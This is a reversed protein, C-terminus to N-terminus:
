AFSESSKLSADLCVADETFSLGNVAVNEFVSKLEPVTELNLVVQKGDFREILGAPTKELLLRRAKDLIFGGLNGADVEATVRSGDISVIKVNASVSPSMMGLFNLVFSVTATDPSHYALTLGKAATRQRIMENLEEFKAQLIM